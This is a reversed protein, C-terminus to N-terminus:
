RSKQSRGSDSSASKGVRFRAHMGPRKNTAGKPRGSPNGSQGPKFRTDKPPKGYGVEYGPKATLEKGPKKKRGSM